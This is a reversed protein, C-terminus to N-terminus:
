ASSAPLTIECTLGRPQWSLRLEGNQGAIMREMVRMGFGRSAPPQVAPGNCETWRLVFRDNPVRSWEVQVCGDAVSLAGYKAANTSLEHLTVAIAQGISPEVMLDSGEIRARGDGEQCYPALEQTVINRVDAGAWRTQVFLRHVNALAQIRGEIAHKLGEPTDSNSLHVAAQVSALMNKARHEAERALIAIQADSRKRESIDRAIKSAGVVTGKADRIPSVTLSIEVNSGDKRRRVTEYHDVREGRRIRDLIAPEEDQREPPILITVSKGIVEEALYGFLRQAGPNSSSIVGNLDKSIIADDSSDVIATTRRAQIELRKQESIDRAIKSAGVIKGGLDRVPSVTLSIDILSGDKRRRVTEYHDVREGRRIREIIKPEEDHREPPILILIPKGIIEEALYGYIREAGKNWSGILGDLNTSIIADNSSEVIAALLRSQEERERLAAEARSREILDAAQRALVDLTRLALETPQHPERWHTSIMGLLEGARSILPTSQVARIGSRRYADLDSAAVVRDGTEIDPLITRAGSSLALGCSSTSDTRVYEWFAASEPHFGRNVLLRLEDRQPLFVQMSGMDASTLSIAADLISEYLADVNGEPILSTSIKQLQLAVDLQFEVSVTEKKTQV